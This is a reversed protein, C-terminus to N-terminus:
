RCSTPAGVDPGMTTATFSPDAAAKSISVPRDAARSNPHQGVCPAAAGGQSAGNPCLWRLWCWPSLRLRFSTHWTRVSGGRPGPGAM